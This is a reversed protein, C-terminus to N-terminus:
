ELDMRVAGVRQTALRPTVGYSLSLSATLAIM